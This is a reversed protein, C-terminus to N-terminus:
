EMRNEETRNEETRLAGVACKEDILTQQPQIKEAANRKIKAAVRLNPPTAASSVRIDTVIELFGASLYPLLDPTKYLGMRRKLHAPDNPIKGENRAAILLLMCWTGKSLDGLKEFDPDNLIDPYFKIWHLPGSAERYQFREWNKVMYFEPESM